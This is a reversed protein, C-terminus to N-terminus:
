GIPVRKRNVSQNYKPDDRRHESHNVRGLGRDADDNRIQRWRELRLGNTRNGGKREVNEVGQYHVFSSLTDSM